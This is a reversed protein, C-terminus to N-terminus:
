CIKAQTLLLLPVIWMTAEFAAQAFLSIESTQFATPGCPTGPGAPGAPAM